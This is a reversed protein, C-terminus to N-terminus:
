FTELWYGMFIGLDYIDVIGDKNFDSPHIDLQWSLIPYGTVEQTYKSPMFWVKQNTGSIDWGFDIFTQIEKMEATTKGAVTSGTTDGSGVAAALGTTQVDWLCNVV